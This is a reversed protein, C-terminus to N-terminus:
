VRRSIFGSQCLRRAIVAGVREAEAGVERHCCEQGLADLAGAGGVFVADECEVGVGAGGEGTLVTGAGGDGQGGGDGERDSRMVGVHGRVSWRERGTGLRPLMRGGLRAEDDDPDRAAEAGAM